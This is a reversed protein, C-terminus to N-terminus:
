FCLALHTGKLRAFETIIGDIDIVNKHKHVHLIALSSLREDTVTRRLPFQQGKMGIFSREATCTSVPYTLLTILGVDTNEGLRPRAPNGCSFSFHRM